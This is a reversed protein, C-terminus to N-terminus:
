DKSPNVRSLQTSLEQALQVLHTGAHEMPEVRRSLDVNTTLVAGFLRRGCDQPLPTFYNCSRM